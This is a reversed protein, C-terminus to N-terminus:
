QKGSPKFLGELPDEEDTEVANESAEAALDPVEFQRSKRPRRDGLSPAFGVADALAEEDLFFLYPSGYEQIIPDYESFQELLWDKEAPIRGLPVGPLEYKSGPVDYYDGVFGFLGRLHDSTVELSDPIKRRGNVFWDQRMEEFKPHGVTRLVQQPNGRPTKVELPPNLFQSLTEIAWEAVSDDTTSFVFGAYGGTMEQVMGRALLMGEIIRREEGQISPPDCYENRQWHTTINDFTGGCSPCEVGTENHGSLTTPDDPWKNEFGPIPNHGIYDFFTSADTAFIHRGQVRPSFPSLLRLWEEVDGATKEVSFRLNQGNDITQTDLNGCKAYVIRLFWPTPSVTPPISKEDDVHWRDLYRRLFPLNRTRWRYVTNSKLQDREEETLDELSQRLDATEDTSVIGRGMAGFEDDLWEIFDRRTSTTTLQPNRGANGSAERDIINGGGFLLGRIIETQRDTPEPYDCSHSLRWHNGLNKKTEGCQRCREESNTM